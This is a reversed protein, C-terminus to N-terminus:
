AFDLSCDSKQKRTFKGLMSYGLTSLCDGLVGAALLDALLDVLRSKKFGCMECFTLSRCYNGLGGTTM